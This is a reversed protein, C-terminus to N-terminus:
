CCECEDFKKGCDPCIGDHKKAAQASNLSDALTKINKYIYDIGELKGREKESREAARKWSEIHKLLRYLVKKSTAEDVDFDVAAAWKKTDCCDENLSLIKERLTM